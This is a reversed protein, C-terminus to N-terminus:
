AQISRLPRLTEVISSAWKLQRIPTGNGHRKGTDMMVGGAEVGKATPEWYTRDKADRGGVQYGCAQLLHNVAIASMGLERGIDTPTLLQEQQPAPLATAGMSGLVDFGVALATARNAALAAQNGSLGIMKAIGLNQRFQLRAERAMRLDSVPVTAPSTEGREYADFREIIEITIETSTPTDSKATIFIAQKRNLYHATAPRGGLPGATEAVTASVGLAELSPLHRRILDRIKHPDAFGLRIALDLDRIRPEGDIEHVALNGNGAIGTM